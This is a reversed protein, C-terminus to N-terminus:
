VGDSVSHVTLTAGVHLARSIRSTCPTSERCLARWCGVARGHLKNRTIGSISVQLDGSHVDANCMISVAAMWQQAACICVFVFFLERDFEV